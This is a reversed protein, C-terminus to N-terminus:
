QCKTCDYIHLRYTIKDLWMAAIYIFDPQYISSSSSSFIIFRVKFQSLPFSGLFYEDRGSVRLVYNDAVDMTVAARLIQCKDLAMKVVDAPYMQEINVQLTYSVQVIVCRDTM